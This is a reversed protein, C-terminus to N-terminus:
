ERERTNYAADTRMILRAAISNAKSSGPTASALSRLLPAQKPDTLIYALRGMNSGLRIKEAYEQVAKAPGSLAKLFGGQELNKRTGTDSATNSGMRPAKGTAEMTDLFNRFGQWTAEGNPLARIAAELNKAQQPNGILAAAFNGGGWASPGPINAQTAENFVSEAHARILDRAAEPRRKALERVAADIEKESNALPNKPFLAEIAKETTPEKQLKGILGSMLPELYKQRLDAQAKRAAEYSGVSGTAADSGTAKDAAEIPAQRAEGYNKAKLNSSDAQGPMAAADAKERLRRQVLDIVGVSDDSMNAITANLAPDSRVEKLTQAYVPDGALATNIEPGVHQQAAKEYLPRTTRNIAGQVDSITGQAAEGIAPGISSPAPNIPAIEGMAKRGAMEVLAPRGAMMEKLPAGYESNEVVRRTPSLNGRGGTAQAIAEDWSLKVGQDAAKQMIQAAADVDSKSVGDLANQLANSSTLRVSPAAFGIIGGAIRAPVEFPTGEAAQGAAESGAGGLVVGAAKRLAGGPGGIAGPVMSGISAAYKGATTQPEYFKGVVAEAGSLMGDSTPIGINALGRVAGQGVNQAKTLPIQDVARADRLLDDATRGQPLLGLKEAGHAALWALMNGPLDAIDGAIGPLAVAGKGLGAAASKLVDAAGSPKEKERSPILDHFLNGRQSQQPPILDDLLSSAPLDPLDDFMGPKGRTPAASAPLDPLDDFMNFTNSKM